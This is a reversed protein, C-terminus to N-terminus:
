DDHLSNTVVYVNVVVNDISAAYGSGSFALKIITGNDM